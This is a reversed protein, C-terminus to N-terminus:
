GLLVKCGWIVLAWTAGTAAIVIGWTALPHREIWDMESNADVEPDKGTLAGGDATNSSIPSLAGDGVPPIFLEVGELGGIESNADKVRYFEAVDVAATILHDAAANVSMGRRMAYVRLKHSTLGNLSVIMGNERSKTEM